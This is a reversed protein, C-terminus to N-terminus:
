NGNKKPRGPKTKIAAVEAMISERTVDKVLHNIALPSPNQAFEGCWETNHRNQYTPFRRCTGMIQQPDSYYICTLCTNNFNINAV